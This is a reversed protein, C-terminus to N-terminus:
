EELAFHLLLPLEEQNCCIINKHAKCFAACTDDPKGECVMIVNDAYDAGCWRFKEFWYMFQEKEIDKDLRTVVATKNKKKPKILFLWVRYTCCSAGIVAFFLFLMMIIIEIM